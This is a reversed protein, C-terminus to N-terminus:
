RRAVAHDSPQSGSAPGPAVATILGGPLYGTTDGRLQAGRLREALVPNPEFAHVQAGCMMLSYTYVGHNAGVDLAIQGPALFRYLQHHEPDGRARVRRADLWILVRSYLNPLRM